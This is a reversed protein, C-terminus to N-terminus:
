KQKLNSIPHYEWQSRFAWWWFGIGETWKAQKRGGCRHEGDQPFGPELVLLKAYQHQIGRRAMLCEDKSAHLPTSWSAAPEVICALGGDDLLDHALIDVGHAGGEAEDDLGDVVVPLCRRGEQGGARRRNQPESQKGPVFEVNTPKGREESDSASGACPIDSALLRQPRVPAVVKLLGVGQDPHHIGCVPQADVVAPLLQMAKQLLLHADPQGTAPFASTASPTSAVKLPSDTPTQLCSPRRPTCSQPRARLPQDPWFISARSWGQDLSASM